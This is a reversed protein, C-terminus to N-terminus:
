RPLAGAFDLGRARAPVLLGTPAMRQLTEIAAGAALMVTQEIPSFDRRAKSDAALREYQRRLANLALERVHEGTASQVPSLILPREIPTAIYRPGGDM